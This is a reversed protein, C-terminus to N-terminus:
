FRTGECRLIHNWYEVESYILCIQQESNGKFGKLKLVGIKWPIIGRRTKGTCFKRYM